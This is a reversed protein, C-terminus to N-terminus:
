LRDLSSRQRAGLTVGIGFEELFTFLVLHISVRLDGLLAFLVLFFRLSQLAQQLRRFHFGFLVRGTEDAGLTGVVAKEVATVDETELADGVDLGV